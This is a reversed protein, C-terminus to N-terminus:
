VGQYNVVEAGLEHPKMTGFLLFLDWLTARIQVSNAYAERYEPSNTSVLQPQLKAPQAQQAMTARETQKNM